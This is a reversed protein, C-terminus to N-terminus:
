TCFNHGNPNILIYAGVLTILNKYMSINLFSMTFITRIELDHHSWSRSLIRGALKGQDKQLFSILLM